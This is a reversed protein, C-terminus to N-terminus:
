ALEAYWRRLAAVAEDHSMPGNDMRLGLLHQYAKGVLPGPALGLIAMIETGDLDPRIADLEEQERLRAIREELADYTAALTAAKRQNRTTTDSRVLKHLRALLPGADTVYRRVASDTWEGRGYGYFRLHLFVLRAIDETLDKPFKLAKLRAKALRAGVVEHHHFTVQRAGEAEVFRRTDPKGIDHLLAAWRLVLDPGAAPDELEIAQDLVQLTHAYVDKHQGHEDAAMRLAPLEPLVVDALGTDVLAELGRRPYQGALLKNLEAQVREATIRGLEPALETMAASVEPSLTVGLQAVFRAARLMRLPDDGFSQAPTGPTRLVGRALDALGGYPDVFARDLVSVAMANMSFDRRLLDDDINDGFAVIPNRSVRDYQDARFTTIECPEGGIQAGITGYDIGTTWTASALGTLLELVRQPHADTTFDLDNVPRGMLADRVPGGVLYLQHGAAAFVEGLRTAVPPIPVLTGPNGTM